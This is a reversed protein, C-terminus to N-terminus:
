DVLWSIVSFMNKTHLKDKLHHILKVPHRTSLCQFVMSGNDASTALTCNLALATLLPDCDDM